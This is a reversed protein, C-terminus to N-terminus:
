TLGQAFKLMCSVVLLVPMRFIRWQNEKLIMALVNVKVLNTVKVVPVEGAKCTEMNFQKLVRDVYARQSLGLLNQSRDRHIEIGLVFSAEGLDKMEFTKSLLAKTEHLLNVDNSALLTDDVYLVLFIFKSGSTKLYICHDVNNEVFGLSTIVEDFKLYWQKSAQKLGYISKKLECVLHEKGHEEFGEPQKMYFTEWLDGNLFATKVDMQHLELDFHATLAMIIRFSDESSVPSFTETFDIGEKQTFGKAVLIAKFREIRGQSDKKTKYVWKSGIPKCGTPLEVLELVGNHDMSAIEDQMSNVWMSSQPCTVADKYTMPDSVPGIDFDHEGIYVVYDDPIASKRTRTSRRSAIM